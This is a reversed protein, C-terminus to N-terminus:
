CDRKLRSFNRDKEENEDASYHPKVFREVIAFILLAFLGGFWSATAGDGSNLNPTGDNSQFGNYSATCLAPNEMVFIGAGGLGANMYMTVFYVLAIAALAYWPGFLSSARPDMAVRFLLHLFLYSLIMNFLISYGTNFSGALSGDWGCVGLFLVNSTKTANIFLIQAFVAGLIQVVMYLLGRLLATKGTIMTAATILPNFHAGSYPGFSLVMLAYFISSSVCMYFVGSDVTYNLFYVGLSYLIMGSFEMGVDFVLPLGVEDLGLRVADGNAMDKASDDYFFRFLSGQHRSTEVKLLKASSGSEIDEEGM